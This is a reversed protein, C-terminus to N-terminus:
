LLLEGGERLQSGLLVRGRFRRGLQPVRGQPAIRHRHLVYQVVSGAHCLVCALRNTRQVVRM